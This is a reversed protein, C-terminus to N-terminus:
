QNAQKEVISYILAAGNPMPRLGKVLPLGFKERAAAVNALKFEVSQRNRDPCNEEIFDSYLKRKSIQGASKKPGLLDAEQLKYLKSYLEILKETEKEEWKRAM